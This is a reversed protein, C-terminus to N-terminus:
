ETEDVTLVSTSTTSGREARRFIGLRSVLRISVGERRRGGLACYNSAPDDVRGDQFGIPTPRGHDGRRQSPGGPDGEVTATSVGGRGM